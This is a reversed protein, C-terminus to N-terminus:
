SLGKPMTSDEYSRSPIASCRLLLRRTPCLGGTQAASAFTATPSDISSTARRTFPATTADISM